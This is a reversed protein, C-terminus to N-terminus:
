SFIYLVTYLKDAILVYVNSIIITVAAAVNIPRESHALRHGIVNSM